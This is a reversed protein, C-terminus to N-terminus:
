CVGKETASKGKLYPTLAALSILIAEETRITRSGQTACTNIYFDFLDGVEVSEEGEIGIGLTSLKADGRAAHELGQVGGFVILLHQFSPLAHLAGDGEGLVSGRESTGLVLDYSKCVSSGTFVDSLSSTHRVKYGWYTGDARAPADREVISGYLHKGPCNAYTADSGSASIDVTVRTGTPVASDVEVLRDLGVDVYRTPAANKSAVFGPRGGPVRAVGERWQCYDDRALHSPLALPNLLGVLRLQPSMPFLHKRLYQPTEVYSLISTFFETASVPDLSQTQSSRRQHMRPNSPTAAAGETFIILEDVCYIAAARAVQGAVYMRLEASQANQLISSPLAISVTWTRPTPAAAVVEVDNAPEAHPAGPYMRKGVM